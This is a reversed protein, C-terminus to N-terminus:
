CIEECKYLTGNVMVKVNQFQCTTITKPRALKTFTVSNMPSSFSIKIERTM